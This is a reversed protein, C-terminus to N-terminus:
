QSVGESLAKWLSPSSVTLRASTEQSSVKEPVPDANASRPLLVCPEPSVRAETPGILSSVYEDLGSRLAEV